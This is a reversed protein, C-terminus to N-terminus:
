GVLSLGGNGPLTYPQGLITITTAGDTNFQDVVCTGNVTFSGASPAPGASSWGAGNGTQLTGGAYLPIGGGTGDWYDLPASSGYGPLSSNYIVGTVSITAADGPEGNFGDNAPTGPDQYLVLGPMNNSGGFQGTTPGTLSVTSGSAGGILLSYNEGAGYLGSVAYSSDDYTLTGYEPQAPNNPDVTGACVAASSRDTEAMPRGGGSENSSMTAGPLCPAGNGSATATFVTGSVTGPVNGAMPYPTVTALVINSGTVATSSSQPDIWLGQDFRYIGPYAPEGAYSSCDGITMSTTIKVPKQYEGPRLHTTGGIVTTGLALSAYTQQAMGPCNIATGSSAPNPPAGGGLLPDNIPAYTPDIHNYSTIVSQGGCAPTNTPSDNPDGADPPPDGPQYAASVGGLGRGLLASSGFCTDLPWLSETRYKANSSHITGFVFLNSTSKADVADDYEWGHYSGTWPQNIVQTNLYMDGSVIFNGSGGGLVAHPGVKNLAVISVPLGAKSSAVSAGAQGSLQPFGLVGALLSRWQPTASVSLGCAGPPAVAGSSTGSFTAGAIPRGSGDLYQATWATGVASSNADVTDQVINVMQTPTPVLGNGNCIVSANLQQAGAFAAFDAANQARRVQIFGFSGDVAVAALGLIAILALAFLLMVQGGQDRRARRRPATM